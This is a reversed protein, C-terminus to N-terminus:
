VYFTKTGGNTPLNLNAVGKSLVIDGGINTIQRQRQGDSLGLGDCFWRVRAWIIGDKDQAAVVTDGFLDVNKVTLGNM